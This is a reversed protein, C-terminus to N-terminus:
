GNYIKEYTTNWYGFEVHTKVSNKKRKFPQQTTKYLIKRQEFSEVILLFFMAADSFAKKQVRKM